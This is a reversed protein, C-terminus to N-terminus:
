SLQFEPLTAILYAAQKLREEFGGDGRRSLATKIAERVAPSVDGQLLLDALFVAGPEPTEFGHRQALAALQIKGQYPGAGSLMALALNARGALTAPHIWTRGGFWGKSTPPQCLDQGLGALDGGFQIGPVSGELARLLGVAFEM